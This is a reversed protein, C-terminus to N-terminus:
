LTDYATQFQILRYMGTNLKKQGSVQSGCNCITIMASKVSKFIKGLEKRTSGQENENMRRKPYILFTDVDELCFEYCIVAQVALDPSICKM